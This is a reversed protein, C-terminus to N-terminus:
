ATRLYEDREAQSMKEFATEYDTARLRDMREFKGGDLDDVSDAPVRALTRPTDPKQSKDPLTPKAKGKGPPTVAADKRGFAKQVNAHAKRLLAPSLYNEGSKGAAEQLARVEGDLARYLVPNKAGNYEPHEKLFRPVVAKTFHAVRMEQATTAKDIASLLKGKADSNAAMQAHFEGATLDGADFKQAIETGKQEISALTEKAKDPMKWDPIAPEEDLDAAAAEAEAAAAAEPDAEADAGADAEGADADADPEADADADAEGEAADADAEADGADADAAGDGSDADAGEATEEEEEEDPAMAAREADTMGALDNDSLPGFVTDDVDAHASKTDAGTKAAEQQKAM